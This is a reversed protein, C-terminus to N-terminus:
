KGREKFRSLARRLVDQTTANGAWRELVLEDVTGTAVIIDVYVPRPTGAQLQRVPGVREIVQQYLELSWTLGFFVIRRGGAQLNLGHGASKPHVVLMPIKGANWDRETQPDNDMLRAQPFASLIRERDHRFQIAVLMPEGQANDVVEQLAELKLDHVHHWRRRMDEDEYWIAGQAFQMCKGTAAAANPSDIVGDELQLFMERELRAYERRLKDPLEVRVENRILPPLDLYDEARLSYCLDSVLETIEELAGPKPEWKRGDRDMQNFWRRQFMGKTRGLRRGEDLLLVQGYLDMLGQPAPTGTLQDMQKIYPRVHWLARSRGSGPDQYMRAEDLIVHDWPWRGGCAPIITQVLWKLLDVNIVHVAAPRLAQQLREEPTGRIMQVTLHKLHDWKAAEQAWVMTAVRLPAVVLTRHTDLRDIRNAVATLACVTKGLGMDMHLAGYPVGDLHAIAPPQYSRPAFKM